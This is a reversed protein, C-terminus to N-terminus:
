NDGIELITKRIVKYASNIARKDVNMFDGIMETTPVIIKPIKSNKKRKARRIKCRHQFRIAEVFKESQYYLLDFIELSFSKGNLKYKNPKYKKKDLSKRVLIVLEDLYYEEHQDNKSELTDEIIVGEEGNLTTSTSLLPCLSGDLNTPYSGNSITQKRKNILFNIAIKSMYSMLSGEKYNYSKLDCLFKIKLEQTLDDMEISKDFTFSSYWNICIKYILNEYQNIVEVVNVKRIKEGEKVKIKYTM